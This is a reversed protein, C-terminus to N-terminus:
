EQLRSQFALWNGLKLDPVRSFERRNGTILEADLARAHGAILTDYPGIGHGKRELRSRIKASQVSAPDDFPLVAFPALTDELFRGNKEPERSKEVGVRLEYVTIMSVGISKTPRARVREMVRPNGRLLAIFTDTDLLTRIM